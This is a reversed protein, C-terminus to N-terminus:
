FLMAATAAIAIARSPTMSHYRQGIWAVPHLHFSGSPPLILDRSRHPQSLAYLILAGGERPFRSFPTAGPVFLAFNCRPLQLVGGSRAFISIGIFWSVM